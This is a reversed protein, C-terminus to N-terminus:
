RARNNNSINWSDGPAMTRHSQQGLGVLLGRSSTTGVVKGCRGRCVVLESYLAYRQWAM